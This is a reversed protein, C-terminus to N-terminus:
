IKKGSKKFESIDTALKDYPSSASFNRDLKNRTYVTKSIGYRRTKPRVVSQLGYKKMLRAIRKHNYKKQYIREYEYTMRESGIRYKHKIQLTKLNNVIKM